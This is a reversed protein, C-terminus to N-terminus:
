RNKRHFTKKSPADGMDEYFAEFSNLWSECMKIGKKKYMGRKCRSKAYNWTLYEKTKILNVDEYRRNRKALRESFYCGCSTTDGGTVSTLQIEKINGCECSFTGIAGYKNFGYVGIVTLRGYKKGEYKKHFKLRNKLSKM